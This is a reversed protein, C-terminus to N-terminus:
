GSPVLMGLRELASAALEYTLERASGFHSLNAAQGSWLPSFESSDAAESAARIPALACAATPFAPTDPSIPGIERVIRNVLGRAPRGTFVNTLVTGDDRASGLAIRHLDSITSESTFLYATGIQVGAAGLAHAAAIGRGDAIGGAAVVPAGIADVVQPVLAMTGPQSDVADTLFMGRHGGAELGQAIVADCGQNALWRAEGVTTASGLVKCGVSKVRDLLRRKPLGFHFSVVEPEFEEVLNCMADDFPARNFATVDASVEVGLEARYPALRSRWAEEREPDPQPPAHCFFNVNLPRSTGERIAGIEARAKEVTLLACPLSGLGGAESVAIAMAAGTAGAMPAQIIPLEIGLLDLLRRDPWM